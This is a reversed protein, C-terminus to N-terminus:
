PPAPAAILRAPDGAPPLIVRERIEVGLARAVAAIRELSVGAYRTAEYRQVQQEKLGLRGALEKQTLGTAVRARILADPLEDLSDLELVGVEGNRLAEYEALQERLEALQSEMAERMVRRLEPPRHAEVSDLRGLAGEFERAAARTIRYQRENAIM